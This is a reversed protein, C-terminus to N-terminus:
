AAAERAPEHAERGFLLAYLCPVFFLTLTSAVALGAMMVVALPQWLAGGSLYLPMLGLVTTASTMVIPRLRKSSASVIADFVDARQRDIDIQDILVIANNIIIGALSILGLVGFFSVPQGTALLGWPVGIVVLPVSAFILLTRRFSNFQFMIAGVMATLAIGFNGILRGYAEASDEAEGGVSISYGPPLDLGDLTPQAFQLLQGATLTESKASVKITRVQDIRRVTTFDPVPELSAIQQLAIPGNENGGVVISLFDELTARDEPRARLVIAISSDGERYTSITSGDLLTELVDSVSQTSLGLRKAQNQDINIRFKVTKNGWDNENQAIGPARRFRQEVTEALQLLRDGDAGSIEIEVIGSESGGMALRKFKFRAEPIRNSAHARAREMAALTTEFDTTNVIFFASAPDADAPSLALYFRPGGDGVYLAVSEIEPNAQGDNLWDMFRLAVEETQEVHTGRPLDMYILFQNRDSLPFMQAPLLTFLWVSLAVLAFAAVIVVLRLRLAMAIAQEYFSRLRSPRAPPAEDRGASAGSTGLLWVALVPLFCLATVWSGILTLAVVAGLSFAYEGSAGELLLLPLFAFITTLSSVLLPTAYQGGAAIAADRPKAGETVRSRIDEVIVVGNDVLLGLSIIIAAISVQELDIALFSMGILAFMISFPVILATVLGARLGLFLLVVVLVVAVTQLVNSIAGSVATEVKEPQYTAFEAVFGVPLTQEFEEVTRTLDRGLRDIDVGEQMNVALMLAPRGNFHVPKNRPEEYGRRVQVLDQLRMFSDAGELRTLLREIEAVSKFDGSVELQISTGDADISGAPAIVNEAQLDDILQRLEAGIAAIRRVDVELWIREAQTGLIDVKAIGEVQYIRARLDDAADFMEAFSFGEATIAVTAIAVEGFDTNVFPGQTGSPLEPVVDEMKERFDTFAPALDDVSDRFTAKITATGSQVVTDIEDVEPIERIAREMPLAILDEVRDPSMGPFMATAVATRITIAPDERAPFGVYLLAGQLLVAIMLLAAFRSRELGFRTLFDM